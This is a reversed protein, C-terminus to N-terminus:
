KMLWLIAVHNMNLAMDVPFASIYDIYIICLEYKVHYYYFGKSVTRFILTKHISWLASKNWLRFNLKEIM